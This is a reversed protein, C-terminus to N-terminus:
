RGRSNTAAWVVSLFEKAYAGAVTAAYGDWDHSGHSDAYHSIGRIVLCPLARMAGASETEICYVGYERSLRDRVMSDHVMRDTSAILGYHIVPTSKNRPRRPVIKRTDCSNCLGPIAGVHQYDSLFLEDVQNPRAFRQANRGMKARIDGLISEILNDRLLHLSQLKMLATLTLQPPHNLLRVQRPHGKAFAEISDLSIVGGDRLGPKAVVIDGLRIDAQASPVGAGIGVMLGFRIARFSSVLQSVVITASTNGSNGFPLGAIVINHKGMRGLIYTNHDGPKPPLGQHIEDLLAQAAAMEVPLTCIWAVTYDNYSRCRRATSLTQFARIILDLTM